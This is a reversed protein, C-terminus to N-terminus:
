ATVNFRFAIKAYFIVYCLLLNTTLPRTIIANIMCEKWCFIKIHKYNIYIQFVKAWCLHGTLNIHTILETVAYCFNYQLYIYHVTKIEDLKMISLIYDWVIVKIHGNFNVHHSIVKFMAFFLCRAFSFHESSLLILGSIQM